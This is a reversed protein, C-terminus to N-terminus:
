IKKLILEGGIVGFLIHPMWAAIFPNITGSKGLVSCLSICGYFLLSLSVGKIVAQMIGGKTVRIGFPIVLLCFIFSTFPTALKSYLEVIKAPPLNKGYNKKLSKKLQRYNMQDSLRKELILHEPSETYPMEKKSYSETTKAVGKKGYYEITGDFFWWKHDIWKASDARIVREINGLSDLEHVQINKLDQGKNQLTEIRLIHNEKQNFFNIDQLTGQLRNQFQGEIKVEKFDHFKLQLKPVVLEDMLLIGFCLILSVCILPSSIRFKSIGAAQMGSIENNKGFTGLEYIVALMLAFPIIKSYIIPLLYCYYRLAGLLGIKSELFDDLNEFMDVM